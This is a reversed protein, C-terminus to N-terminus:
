LARATHRLSAADTNTSNYKSLWFFLYNLVTTSTFFTCQAGASPAPPTIIYLAVSSMFIVYLAVSSMSIVYLAVSSMSIVYLAM